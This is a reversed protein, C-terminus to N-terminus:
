SIDQRGDDAHDVVHSGLLYFGLNFWDFFRFNYLSLWDNLQGRGRWCRGSSAPRGESILDSTLIGVRRRLNVVVGITGKQLGEKGPSCSALCFNIFAVASAGMPACLEEVLKSLYPLVTYM